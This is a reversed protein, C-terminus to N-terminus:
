SPKRGLNPKSRTQEIMALNPHRYNILWEPTKIIKGGKTVRVTTGLEPQNPYADDYENLLTAMSEQWSKPMSEMLVRPLTLWSAYSIGFYAALDTRYDYEDDIEVPASPEASASLAKRMSEVLDPPLAFDYEYREIAIVACRLLADREALKARLTDREERRKAALREMSGLKCIASSLRQELHEVEGPDVRLAQIASLIIAKNGISTDTWECAELADAIKNGNPSPRTYLPGLKAIEDLCANWGAEFIHPAHYKCATFARRMADRDTLAVPEGRHQEAPKSLIVKFKEPIDTWTGATMPDTEKLLDRIADVAMEALERPVMVFENSM